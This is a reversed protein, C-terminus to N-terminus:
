EGIYSKSYLVQSPNLVKKFSISAKHLEITYNSSILLKVKVKTKSISLVEAYLGQFPKDSLIIYEGAKLESSNYSDEIDKAAQLIEELKADTITETIIPDEWSPLTNFVIGKRFMFSNILPCLARIESLTNSNRAYELPTVLFGYNLLLSQLKIKGGTIPIRLLPIVFKVTFGQDNLRNEFYEIEALKRQNIRIINIAKGIM